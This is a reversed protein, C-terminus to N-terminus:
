VDELPAITDKVLPRDFWSTPLPMLALQTAGPTRSLNRDEQLLRASATALASGCGTQVGNIGAVMPLLWCSEKVLGM